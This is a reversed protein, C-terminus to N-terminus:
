LFYSSVTLNNDDIARKLVSITDRLSNVNPPDTAHRGLLDVEVSIGQATVQM